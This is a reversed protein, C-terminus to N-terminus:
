SNEEVAKFHLAERSQLASEVGAMIGPIIWINPTALSDQTVNYLGIALWAFLAAIGLFRHFNGRQYLVLASAFSSLLFIAFLVFGVLGTEALLRIYLNKPNPFLRSQPNLQKAIEPVTTLTWDPLNDYIWFGSAGLGVGMIPHEEFAAMAGAAYASRGGANIDTLYESLSNASTDWLRRFYNKQGLFYVAGALVGIVAAIMALRLLWGRRFGGFFWTWAARLHARGVLLFVLGAVGVGILLGGRSYTALLTLTSLALLVPELWKTRTLRINTMLAAFLIPLYMTVIQGALWSPEYAMGSIRNTRVLERMSFALQWHTVMEKELLPTYFTVAQLGCWALDLGLGALMWRLTFKVETEDRNMWSASVFFALGIVLTVLARVARGLHEQGRLPIPDILVGLSTAAFVASAFAALLITSGTWPFPRERRISQILLLPLLLALPYLALPRVYTTEGLFPFWRFSTVPLSVLAAAWLIKVVASVSINKM